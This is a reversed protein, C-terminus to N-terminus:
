SRPQYVFTLIGFGAFDKRRHYETEGMEKVGLSTKKKFPSQEDQM